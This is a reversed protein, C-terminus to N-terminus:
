ARLNGQRREISEISESAQSTSRVTNGGESNAVQIRLGAQSGRFSKELNSHLKKMGDSDPAAKPATRRNEDPTKHRNTGSVSSSTSRGRPTVKGGKGASSSGTAQRVRIQPPPMDSDNGSNAGM